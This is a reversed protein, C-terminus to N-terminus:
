ATPEVEFGARELYRGVVDVITPEDDVVLIKAQSSDEMLSIRGSTQDALDM